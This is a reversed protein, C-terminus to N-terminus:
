PWPVNRPRLSKLFAVHAHGGREVAEQKNSYEEWRNPMHGNRGIKAIKPHDSLLRNRGLASVLVRRRFDAEVIAYSANLTALAAEPEGCVPLDGPAPTPFATPSFQASLEVRSCEQLGGPNGPSCSHSAFM